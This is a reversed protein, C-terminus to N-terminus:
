AKLNKIKHIHEFIKFYNIPVCLNIQERKLVHRICSILNKCNPPYMSMNFEDPCIKCAKPKLVCGTITSTMRKSTCIEVENHIYLRNTAQFPKPNIRIQVNTDDAPCTWYTSIYIQSKGIPGTGRQLSRKIAVQLNEFASFIFLTVPLPEGNYNFQCYHLHGSHM